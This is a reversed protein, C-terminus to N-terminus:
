GSISSHIQRFALLYKSINITFACISTEEITNMFEMFVLKKTAVFTVIKYGNEKRNMGPNAIITKNDIGNIFCTLVSAINM